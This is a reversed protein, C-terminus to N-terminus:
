SGAEGAHYSPHAPNSDAPSAPIRAYRRSQGITREQAEVTAKDWTTPIVPTPTGGPPVPEPTEAILASPFTARTGCIGPKTQVRVEALPPFRTASGLSPASYVYEGLATEPLPRVM